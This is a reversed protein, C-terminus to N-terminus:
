CPSSVALEVGESAAFAHKIAAQRKDQKCFYSWINACLDEIAHLLVLESMTVKVTKWLDKGAWTKFKSNSKRVCFARAAEIKREMFGDDLVNVVLDLLDRYSGQKPIEGLNVMIVSPAKKWVWSLGRMFNVRDLKGGEGTRCNGVQLVCYM